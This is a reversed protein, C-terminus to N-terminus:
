QSLCARATQEIWRTMNPHPCFGRGDAVYELGELVKAYPGFGAIRFPILTGPDPGPMPTCLCPTVLAHFSRPSGGKM